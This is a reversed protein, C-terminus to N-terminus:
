TEVSSFVLFVLSSAAEAAGDTAAVDTFDVAAEATVATVAGAIATSYLFLFLLQSMNNDFFSGGPKMRFIRKMIGNADDSLLSM